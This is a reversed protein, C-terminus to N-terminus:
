KGGNRTLRDLLDGLCGYWIKGKYEYFTVNYIDGTNIYEIGNYYEIGFTGKDCLLSEIQKLHPIYRDYGYNAILNIGSKIDFAISNLKRTEPLNLEWEKVIEERYKRWNSYNFVM